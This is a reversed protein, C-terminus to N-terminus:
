PCPGPLIAPSKAAAWRAGCQDGPGPILDLQGTADNRNPNAEPVLPAEKESGVNVCTGDPLIVHGSNHASATAPVLVIAASVAVTAALRLLRARM